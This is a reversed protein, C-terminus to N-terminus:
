KKLDEIIQMARHHWCHNERVVEAARHGAKQRANNNKLWRCAVDQLTEPTYVGYHTEPEFSSMMGGAKTDHPSKHMLVFGGVAMCELIRMHLGLGHTNNSLNIKSNGYVNLLEKQSDIVGKYYPQYRPYDNWGGPGYIALSDSCELIEDVLLTRDLMRPYEICLYNIFGDIADNDCQGFKINSKIGLLYKVFLVRIGKRKKLDKFYPLMLSAFTVTAYINKLTLRFNFSDLNGMLPQYLTETLITLDRQMAYPLYDKQITKPFTFRLLESIVKFIGVPPLSKLLNYIYWAADKKLSSEVLFLPPPIYGCLSFDTQKSQSINKNEYNFISRDIGTLLSHQYCPLEVNLGLIAPDGLTYVIDNKHVSGLLINDTDNPVLDQLWVIFRVNKPLPVDNNRIQNIGIVVDVSFNKVMELLLFPSLPNLMTITNHGIIRFGEALGEIMRQYLVFNHGGRRDITPAIILFKM